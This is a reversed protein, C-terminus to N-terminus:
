PCFTRMKQSKGGRDSPPLRLRFFNAWVVNEGSHYERAAFRCHGWPLSAKIRCYPENESKEGGKQSLARPLACQTSAKACSLPFRSPLPFSPPSREEVVEPRSIQGFLTCFSRFSNFFDTTFLILAHFASPYNEAVGM